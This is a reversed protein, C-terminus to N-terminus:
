ELVKNLRELVEHWDVDEVYLKKEYNKYDFYSASNFPSVEAVATTEPPFGYEELTEESIPIFFWNDLWLVFPGEVPFDKIKRYFFGPEDGTYVIVAKNRNRDIKFLRAKEM